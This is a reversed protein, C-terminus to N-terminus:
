LLLIPFLVASSFMGLLKRVVMEPDNTARRPQLAQTPNTQM